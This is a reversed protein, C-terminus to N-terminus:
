EASERRLSRRAYLADLMVVPAVVLTAVVARPRDPNGARMGASLLLGDLADGAVRIWLWAEPDKAALVLAGSAIERAGFLQLLRELGRLGVTRAVARPALLEALGLGIGFWALGRAMRRSNM